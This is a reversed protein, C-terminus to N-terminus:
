DALGLETLRRAHNAAMRDALEAYREGGFERALVIAEGVLRRGWMAIRAALVPDGDTAARLQRVVWLAPEQAPSEDVAGDDASEVDPADAALAGFLEDTLPACLAVAALGEWWDGSEVRRRAEDIVPAVAAMASRPDGVRESRGLLERYRAHRRSLEDVLGMRDALAPAAPILVALREIETLAADNAAARSETLDALV